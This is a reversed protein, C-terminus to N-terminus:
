FFFFYENFKEQIFFSILSVNQFEAFDFNASKPKPPSSKEVKESSM